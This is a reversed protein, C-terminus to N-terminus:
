ESICVIGLGNIGLLKAAGLSLDLIRPKNKCCYPGRDSLRVTIEHGTKMNKVRVHSNLPRTRHAATIGWPNYHEGTATRTGEGYTSAIGCEAFTTTSITLLLFAITGLLLSYHSM